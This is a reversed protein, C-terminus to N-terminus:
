TLASLLWTGAPGLPRQRSWIADIVIQKPWGPTKLEQLTGGSFRKVLWRPIAAWGVGLEAMELVIFYSGSSWYRGSVTAPNKAVPDLRIERFEDLTARNISRMGALPHSRAAFLGIDSHESLTQSAVDSPYAAQTPVLGFHVRGSQVLHVLDDSEAIQCEFDVGPYRKEFELLVSEYRESQYLDSLAISLKGELGDALQSVTKDLRDAAAFIEQVNRLIIHGQETLTPKRTSRDFLTVGLDIELYAISSSITSQSKGLQRGAASFSGATAVAAFAVLAESIHQM